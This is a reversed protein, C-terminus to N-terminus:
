SYKKRKNIYMETDARKIVDGVTFDTKSDYIAIGASLSARGSRIERIKSSKEVRHFLTEMLADACSYDMGQLVAVFEDGGIRYVPSHAFVNCIIGSCNRIYIDGVDHGYTDNTNKLGDVDCVVIAFQMHRDLSMERSLAAIKDTYAAINKVRTLPDTNARKITDELKKQMRSNTERAYRIMISSLEMINLPKFICEYAGADLIQEVKSNSYDATLAVIPMNVGATRNYRNIEKTTETGDMNPMVLDMLILDFVEGSKVINLAEQGSAAETVDAGEDELIERNITRTLNSDDVVLIRTDKLPRSSNETHENEIGSIGTGEGGYSLLSLDVPNDAFQEFSARCKRFCGMLKESFAGCEGNTIMDFAKQYSYAEKYCRRDILADYIDAISVIQASIPIDDGRLGLPYGKGDWKEHHYRCIDKAASIYYDAWKDHMLSVIEYGKQSHTKVIEFEEDTLKGPKMLISDPIAIKGIDHLCSVFTFLKVDRETLGYEPLDKMVQNALINTFGKVRKVHLGSEESRSEVMEGVLELVGENIRNLSLNANNLEATRVAVTREIEERTKLEIRMEDDINHLGVIFGIIEGEDSIDAAFKLQYYYITKNIEARFDVYYAPNESLKKELVSRRTQEHFLERDEEAVFHHTLLELINHFNREDGWGPVIDSLLRSDRYVEGVDDFRSEQMRVYIVTEFDQDLATIIKSIELDKQIENERTKEMIERTIDTFGFAAHDEDEGRIAQFRYFKLENHSMDRFVVSFSDSEMLKSRIAEPRTAGYLLDRDDPHVDRYIYDTVSSLYDAVIPYRMELDETRRHVTCELTKLNVYYASIFTDLFYKSFARQQNMQERLKAELENIYEIEREKQEVERSLSAVDEIDDLSIIFVDIDDKTKRSVTTRFHRYRGGYIMRHTFTYSQGGATVDLFRGLTFEEKLRMIDGPHVATEIEMVIDSWYNEGSHRLRVGDKENEVGFSSYNGSAIDVCYVHIYESCLAEGILAALRNNQVIDM